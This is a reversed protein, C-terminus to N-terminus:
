ALGEEAVVLVGGAKLAEGQACKGCIWKGWEHDTHDCKRTREREHSVTLCGEMNFKNCPRDSHEVLSNVHICFTFTAGDPYHECQGCTSM